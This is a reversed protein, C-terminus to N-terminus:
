TALQWVWQRRVVLEPVLGFFDTIPRYLNQALFVAVNTIILWKVAPTM